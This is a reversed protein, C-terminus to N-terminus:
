PHAVFLEGCRPLACSSGPSPLLFLESGWVVSQFTISSKYPCACGSSSCRVGCRLLSRRQRHPHRQVSGGSCGLSSRNGVGRGADGNVNRVVQQRGDLGVELLCVQGGTAVVSRRRCSLRSSLLLRSSGGDALADSIDRLGLNASRVGPACGARVSEVAGAQGGPSVALNALVDRTGGGCLSVCALLDGQVSQLRAVDDGVVATSGVNSDVDAVALDDM